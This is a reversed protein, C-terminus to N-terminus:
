GDVLGGKFNALGTAGCEPCQDAEALRWQSWTPDQITTPAGCYGCDDGDCVYGVDGNAERWRYRIAM